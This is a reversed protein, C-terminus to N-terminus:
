PIVSLQGGPGRRLRGALELAALDALWRSDALDAGALAAPTDLGDAIARLLLEQASTAEPRLDVTVSRRGAGYLLDLVDQAGRILVAGDALLQNTGASLQSTVPGPVAGIPRQLGQSARATLLSGSRSAAQVVITANGLGAILRNRAM